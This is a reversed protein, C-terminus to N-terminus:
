IHFFLFMQLSRLASSYPPQGGRKYFSCVGVTDGQLESKAGRYNKIPDQTVVRYENGFIVGIGLASIVTLDTSDKRGVKSEQNLVKSTNMDNKLFVDRDRRIRENCISYRKEYYFCLVNYLIILVRNSM